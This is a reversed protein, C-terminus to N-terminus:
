KNTRREIQNEAFVHLRSLLKRVSKETQACRIRKPAFRSVRSHLPLTHLHTFPPQSVPLHLHVLVSLLIRNTETSVFRRVVSFTSKDGNFVRYMLLFPVTKIQRNERRAPKKFRFYIASVSNRGVGGGRAPKQINSTTAGDGGSITCSM